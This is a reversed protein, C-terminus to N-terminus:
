ILLEKEIVVLAIKLGFTGLICSLGSAHMHISFAVSMVSTHISQFLIYVHLFVHRTVYRYSRGHARVLALLHSKRQPPTNTNCRVLPAYLVM